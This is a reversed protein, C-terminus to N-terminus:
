FSGNIGFFFLPFFWQKALIYHLVNYDYIALLGYKMHYPTISKYVKGGIKTLHWMYYVM